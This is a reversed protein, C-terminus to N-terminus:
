GRKVFRQVLAKLQEGLGPAAEKGPSAKKKAEQRFHKHNPAVARATELLKKARVPMGQAEYLGALLICADAHQPQVKLAAELARVAIRSDGGTHLLAEAFVIQYEPKKPDTRIALQALGQAREFQQAQLAEKAERYWDDASREPATAVATVTMVPVPAPEAPRSQAAIRRAPDKLLNFAEALLRFRIEAEEKARGAYRDPHWQKALRHYASKIEDTSAGPQLELIEYPNMPLPAQM